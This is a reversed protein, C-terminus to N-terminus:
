GSLCQRLSKALDRLLQQYAQAGPTLAAGLPDLVGERAETGEIVTAVVKGDYQPERFVCVAKVEAIKERIERLRQASPAAASVDAISGAAALGFRAEFYQYADHFVVYPTKAVPALEAAIAASTEDVSRAFREANALYHPGNEPDAGALERAVAAAMAKANEPDLWVHPDFALVGPSGETEAHGHGDEAHDHGDEEHEHAEWAGGARIPLTRVGPAESLEVFRKGNVAETGSLQSLKAELGHGVIFVLDARGLGAIQQPTFSARHESMAGELLLEPQGKEGMVASVIGHVPVVSAIVKPQAMAPATALMAALAALPLFHRM